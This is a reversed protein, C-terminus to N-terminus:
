FRYSVFIGVYPYAPFDDLDDNISEVETLVDPDASDTSVEFKSFIAGVEGSLSWKDNFEHRYGAALMPAIDSAFEGKGDFTEDGTFTGKLSTGSVFIGGSVRWGNAGPYYDALLALGGISAKGDVTYDEIEFGDDSFSLGGILIGRMEWGGDLAYRGEIAPGLTTLGGGIGFDQALAPVSSLMAFATPLILTKVSKDERM